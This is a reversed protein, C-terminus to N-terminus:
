EPVIQVRPCGLVVQVEGGVDKLQRCSTECALLRTPASPNDYYWGGQTADCSAADEVWGITTSEGGPTTYRMNITNNAVDGAAGDPLAYDCPLAAGRIDNLAAVLSQAAGPEVLIAQGTGGAQAFMNLADLGFGIGIVFTQISPTGALGDATVQVVGPVTSNCDDADPLGDTVLLVITKSDPHDTAWQRAHQIAGEMAPVTATGEIPILPFAAQLTPISGPLPAIGVRPTAYTAVNCESGFFQVGVGIGASGPDSFFMNIADLTAPWWPVMSGSDDVLMYIDLQRGEAVYSDADCEEGEGIEQNNGAGPTVPTSTSPGPADSNGFAGGGSGGGGSPTANGFDNGDGSGGRSRGGSGATEASCGVCALLLALACGGHGLFVQM